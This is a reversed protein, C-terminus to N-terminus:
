EATNERPVAIVNTVSPIMAVEAPLNNPVDEVTHYMIRPTSITSIANCVQSIKLKIGDTLKSDFLLLRPNIPAKIAPTRPPIKEDGQEVGTNIANSAITAPLPFRKHPM